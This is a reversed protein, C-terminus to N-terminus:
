IIIPTMKMNEGAAGVRERALMMLADAKQALAYASSSYDAPKTIIDIKATKKISKLIGCGVSNAALLQTYSIKEIDWGSVGLVSFIAARRVHSPSYRKTSAADIAASFSCNDAFARKIRNYLEDNCLYASAAPPMDCIRFIAALPAFLREVDYINGSSYAAKILKASYDPVFTMVDKGSLIMRRIETASLFGDGDGSFSKGVRRIARIKIKSGIEVLRRAYATALIDNSGYFLPNDGYLARYTDFYVNGYQEGFTKNLNESFARVFEGKTLRYATQSILATDGNESGFALEDVCGLAEAIDVGGRAFKEAGGMSFPFPLELVLDAGGLLAAHAREYKSIIGVEGRETFGGSMIAIVADSDEKIKKLLYEHGYHFPSFECIVASIKMQGGNKSLKLLDYKFIRM